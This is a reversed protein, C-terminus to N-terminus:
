YGGLEWYYGTGDEMTLYASTGNSEISVVQSMDVLHENTSHVAEAPLTRLTKFNTENQNKGFNIGSMFGAILIFLSAIIVTATILLYNRKM